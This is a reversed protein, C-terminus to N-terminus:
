PERYLNAQQPLENALVAGLPVRDQGAGFVPRRRDQLERPLLVVALHSRIAM